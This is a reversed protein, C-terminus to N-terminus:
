RPEKLLMNSKEALESGSPSGMVSEKPPTIAVVGQLLSSLKKAPPVLAHNLIGVFGGDGAQWPSPGNERVITAFSPIASEATIFTATVTSLVAGTTRTVPGALTAAPAEPVAFPLM